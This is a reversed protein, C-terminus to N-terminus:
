QVACHPGKKWTEGCVVLMKMKLVVLGKGRACGWPTDVPHKFNLVSPFPAFPIHVTDCCGVYEEFPVLPLNRRAFARKWLVTSYHRYMPSGSVPRDVFAKKINPRM